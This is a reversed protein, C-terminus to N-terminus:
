VNEYLYILRQWAMYRSEIFFWIVTILQYIKFIIIPCNINFTYGSSFTNSFISTVATMLPYVGQQRVENLFIEIDNLNDLYFSYMTKFKSILIMIYSNCTDFDWLFM